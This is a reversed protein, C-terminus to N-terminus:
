QLTKNEIRRMRGTHITSRNYSHSKGELLMYNDMQKNIDIYIMLISIIEHFILWQQQYKSTYMKAFNLVFGKLSTQTKVHRQVEKLDKIETVFIHEQKTQYKGPKIDAM